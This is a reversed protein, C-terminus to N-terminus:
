MWSAGSIPFHFHFALAFHPRKRNSRFPEAEVRCGLPCLHYSFLKSLLKSKRFALPLPGFDSGARVGKASEVFTQRWVGDLVMAMLRPLRDGLARGQSAGGESM